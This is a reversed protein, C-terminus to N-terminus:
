PISYPYRYSSSPHALREWWRILWSKERGRGLSSLDSFVTPLSSSSFNGAAFKHRGIYGLRVEPSRHDGHPGKELPGGCGIWSAHEWEINFLFRHVYISLSDKKIVRKTWQFSRPRGWIKLGGRRPILFFRPHPISAKNLHQIGVYDCMSKM